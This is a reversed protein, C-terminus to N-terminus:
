ASRYFRHNNIDKIFEMEDAWYPSIFITHYHDAGDTIDGLEGNVLQEAIRLANRFVPDNDNVTLMKERNPDGINWASFQNDKTIVGVISVGDWVKGNNARNMIVNGVAQMGINGESRAEGWMTRAMLDIANKMYFYRGLFVGGLAIFLWKLNNKNM